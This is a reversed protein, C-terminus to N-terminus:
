FHVACMFRDDKILFALLPGFLLNFLLVHPITACIGLYPGAIM